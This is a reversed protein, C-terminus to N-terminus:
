EFRYKENLAVSVADVAAVAGGNLQERGFFNGMVGVFAACMPDEMMSKWSARPDSSGLCFADGGAFLHNLSTMKQNNYSDVAAAFNNIRTYCGLVEFLLQKDDVAIMVGSSRLMELADSQPTFSPMQALIFQYKDLSDVPVRKYDMGYEQMLVMGRREYELDGCIRGIKVRNTKLEEYVLQMVTRVTRQTRWREVIGSGLFTVLVGLFVVSFQLAYDRWTWHGGTRVAPAASDRRADQKRGSGPTRGGVSASAKGASGSRNDSSPADSEPRGSRRSRRAPRRKSQPEASALAQSATNPGANRAPKAPSQAASNRAPQEASAGSQSATNPGGNRASKAASQAASKRDPQEASAGAQEPNAARNETRKENAM